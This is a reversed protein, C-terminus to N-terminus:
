SHHKYFNDLYKGPSLYTDWACRAIIYDAIAKSVPVWCPKSTSTASKDTDHKASTPFGPIFNTAKYKSPMRELSHLYYELDM